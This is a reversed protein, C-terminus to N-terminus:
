IMLYTLPSITHVSRIIGENLFLNGYHDCSGANMKLPNFIHSQICELAYQYAATLTHIKDLTSQVEQPHWTFCMCNGTMVLANKKNNNNEQFCLVCFRVTRNNRHTTFQMRCEAVEYLERFCKWLVQFYASHNSRLVCKSAMLIM